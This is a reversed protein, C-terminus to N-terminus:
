VYEDSLGSGRGGGEGVWRRKGNLRVLFGGRM